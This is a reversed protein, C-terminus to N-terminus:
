SYTNCYETVSNYNSFILTNVIIILQRFLRKITRREYSVTVTCMYQKILSM